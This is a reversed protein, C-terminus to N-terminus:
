IKWGLEKKIERRRARLESLKRRDDTSLDVHSDVQEIRNISENVEELEKTRVIALTNGSMAQPASPGNTKLISPPHAPRGDAEWKVKVRALVPKWKQIPRNNYDLWGCGEMENFFDTAKWPALGIRGAETLVSDITPIERSEREHELSPSPSPSSRGNPSVSHSDSPSETPTESPSGWRKANTKAAGKRFADQTSQARKLEREVRSHFWKGDRLKFFPAVIPRTAIWDSPSLKAINALTEDNDDVWGGRVWCAFILLMYTGHGRNSLHMTDRMYDGIFFPMWIDPKAM